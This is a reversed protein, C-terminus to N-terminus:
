PNIKYRDKWYYITREDVGLMTAADKLTEAKAIAKRFLREILTALNYEQENRKYQSPRLSM